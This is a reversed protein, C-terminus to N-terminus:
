ALRMGYLTQCRTMFFSLMAGTSVTSHVAPKELSFSSLFLRLVMLLATIRRAPPRSSEIFYVCPILPILFWRAISEYASMTVAGSQFHGCCLFNRLRENNSTVQSGHKGNRTCSKYRYLLPFSSFIVPVIGSEGETRDGARLGRTLEYM